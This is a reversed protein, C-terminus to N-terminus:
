SAAGQPNLAKFRGLLKDFAFLMMLAIVFLFLGASAHMFGQGMEDGGHYTLLVLFTVRILNAVAAIPVIALLLLVNRAVSPYHMLHMYLVGMASLSLISNLGSCADAVLLQYQGISLVVGNRAIPYGAHYLVFETIYSVKNKLSGTLAELIFDPLPVLFVLFALPFAYARLARTGGLVLLLGAGVPILSAVDIFAIDVTRGAVYGALGAALLLWGAAHALPTPAELPPRPQKWLLWLFIALVIPGHSYAEQEWLGGWLRVCSFLLLAVFCGGAIAWAADLRAPVTSVPPSLSPSAASM